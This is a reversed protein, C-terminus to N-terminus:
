HGLDNLTVEFQISGCEAHCLVRCLATVIIVRALARACRSFRATVSPQLPLNEFSSREALDVDVSGIDEDKGFLSSACVVGHLRARGDWSLMLVEGFTPNCSSSVSKSKLSQKGLTFRVYSGGKPLDKCSLLRLMIVGRFDVEGVSCSQAAGCEQRASRSRHISGSGQSNHLLQKALSDRVAANKEIFDETEDKAFRYLSLGTADSQDAESRFKHPPHAL